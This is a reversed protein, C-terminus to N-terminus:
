FRALDRGFLRAKMWDFLVKVKNATSVLRTLYVSRWFLWATRGSWKAGPLDALAEHGGIYALMGFSRFRFPRVPAARALRNLNRALHAGQQQAVQATAPLPPSGVAACDGLAWVGPFGPVRFAPDTVVRGRADLEVGLARALPAPETGAAWVVFGAELTEGSAFRIRGPELARVPSQMRLEIGERRFHRAAYGSLAGDFSVLLRDSAEVLVVRALAALEPFAAALEGVMLDHLEAAVEVGTPGGGCVVFTLERRAAEAPTGPISALAYQELVRRRVRRADEITSFPIAHEAIGPVGFSAPRSGVAIVLEDFPLEFRSGGLAARGVLLKGTLDAGVAEGEVVRVGRLRRRAPEVISRLEVTGTAASPLLPTFLFFNRPTVLTADFSRKALGRLLAYGAFGCGAVV